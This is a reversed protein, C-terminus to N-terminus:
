CFVGWVFPLRLANTLAFWAQAREEGSASHKTNETDSCSIFVASSLLSLPLASSLIWSKLKLAQILFFYESFLWSQPNTNFGCWGHHTGQLTMQLYCLIWVSALSFAKNSMDPFSCAKVFCVPSPESRRLLMAFNLELLGVLRLHFVGWRQLPSCHQHTEAAAIVRAAVPTNSIQQGQEVVDPKWQQVPPVWVPSTKQDWLVTTFFTFM